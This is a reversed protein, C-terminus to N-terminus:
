RYFSYGSVPKLELSYLLLLTPPALLYSTHHLLGNPLSAAPM